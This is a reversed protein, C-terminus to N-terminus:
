WRLEARATATADGVRVTVEVQHNRAVYSLLDAHNDQAVMGAGDEGDRAGALAAADAATRARARDIVGEGLHVLGMVVLAVVGMLAAMLPLVQGDEGARM